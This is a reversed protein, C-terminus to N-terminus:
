RISVCCVVLNSFLPPLLFVPSGYRQSACHCEHSQKNTHSRLDIKDSEHALTSPDFSDIHTRPLHEFRHVLRNFKVRHTRHHIPDKTEGLQSLGEVVQSLSAM